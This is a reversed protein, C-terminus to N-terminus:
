FGLLLCSLSLLTHIVIWNATVSRCICTMYELEQCVVGSLSRALGPKPFRHRKQFCSRRTLNLASTARAATGVSGHTGLLGRRVLPKAGHSGKCDSAAPFLPHSPFQWARSELAPLPCLGGARNNPLGERRHAPPPRTRVRPSGELLATFGM